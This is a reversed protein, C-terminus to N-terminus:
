RRRGRSLAAAHRAQKKPQTREYPLTLALLAPDALWAARDAAATEKAVQHAARRRADDRESDTTHLWELEALDLLDEDFTM